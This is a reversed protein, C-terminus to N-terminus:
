QRTFDSFRQEASRNGNFDTAAGEAITMHSQLEPLLRNDAAQLRAILTGSQAGAATDCAARRAVISENGGPAAVFTVGARGAGRGDLSYDFTGDDNADLEFRGPEIAGAGSDCGLVPETWIVAIDVSSLGGRFSTPRLDVGLTVPLEETSEVEEDLEVSFWERFGAVRNLDAVVDELTRSTGAQLFIRGGDGTDTVTVSSARTPLWSTETAIQLTWNNGVAGAAAGFLKGSITLANRVGQGDSRGDVSISAATRGTPRSATVKAVEPLTNDGAVRASVRDAGNGALDEVAGNLVTIRDDTRLIGGFSAPAPVEFRIAGETVHVTVTETLPQPKDRYLEVRGTRVRIAENATVVASTAADYATMSLSPGTRDAKVNSVSRRVSRRGDKEGIVGGLIEIEEHSVLPRACGVPVVSQPYQVAGQLLITAETTTESDGADVTADETGFAVGARRYNTSDAADVTLVPENFTVNLYCRGQVGSIKATMAALTGAAVVQLVTFSTIAAPGGFVTLHLNGEGDGPAFDDSELLDAVADPVSNLETLLLPTCLEGLLPGSVLADAAKRGYALGFASGDFCRRPTDPGLLEEAIRTATAFRDPGYLRDVTIGLDIISNEVRTSVAAPGGLIVVHETGSDTLFQAVDARLGRRPTLLIPYEGQYALPGAALADAFLEGTALLSTRGRDRYTGPVGVSPGVRSAVNVATAYVDDDGIRSVGLGLARIAQAVDDSVVDDDGIIIVHEFAYSHLFTEVSATLIDPETLLLPAGYRLSLAPTVLAYGFHEDAGSTLLATELQSGADVRVEVYKRAIEVATEYRTPGALRSFSANTAAAQAPQPALTTAALLGGLLALALRRSQARRSQARRPRRTAASASSPRVAM